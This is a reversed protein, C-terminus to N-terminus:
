LLGRLIRAVVMEPLFGEDANVFQVGGEDTAVIKFQERNISDKPRSITVDVSRGPPNFTATATRRDASRDFVITFGPAEGLDSFGFSLFKEGSANIDNVAAEAESRLTKWLSEKNTEVLRNKNNVNELESKADNQSVRFKGRFEDAWEGM